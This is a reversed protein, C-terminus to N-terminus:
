FQEKPPINTLDLIVFPLLCIVLYTTKCMVFMSKMTGMAIYFPDWLQLNTFLSKSVQYRLFNDLRLFFVTCANRDFM